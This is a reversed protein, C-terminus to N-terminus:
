KRYKPNEFIDATYDCVKTQGESNLLTLMSCIEREQDSKIVIAGDRLDVPLLNIFPTDLAMAINELTEIRPM